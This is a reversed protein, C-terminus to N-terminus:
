CSSRRPTSVQATLLHPLGPSGSRWPAFLSVSVAPGTGLTGTRRAAVARGDALRIQAFPILGLEAREFQAALYEGVGEARPVLTFDYSSRDEEAALALDQAHDMTLQELRVLSGDLPPVRFWSIM